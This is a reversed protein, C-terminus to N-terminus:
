WKPFPSPPIPWPKGFDLVLVANITVPSLLKDEYAIGHVLSLDSFRKSSDKKGILLECKSRLNPRPPCFPFPVIVGGLCTGGFLFRIGKPLRRPDM